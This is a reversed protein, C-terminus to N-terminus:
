SPVRRIDRLVFGSLPLAPIRRLDVTLDQEPVSYTVVQTLMQVATQILASTVWEGACRHGSAHDGGGQPVFDYHGPERRDFRNPDFAGPDPWSGPDHNTAFLDLLVRTGAWVRFKGVRMPRRPRAIVLPFFPALRRVELAFRRLTEDDGSILRQRWDPQEHLALAAWVVFRDTAVPPRLVNLPEVAAIPPALVQGQLDPHPAIVALASGDPPKLVGARVQLVLEILWNELTRRARVGRWYGPGVKAGGEILAELRRRCTGVDADAFPMGAWEFVSACLLDGVADFLRVERSRQWGSLEDLWRRRFIVALEDAQAPGLLELFMQKRQHHAPGDLGQVGGVGFLTRQLRRPAAASRATADSYFIEANEAGRVVVTRRLLLRTVVADQGSADCTRSGWEYGEALLAATSDPLRGLVGRRAAARALMARYIGTM